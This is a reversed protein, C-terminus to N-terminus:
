QKAQLHIPIKNQFTLMSNQQLLVRKTKVDGTQSTVKGITNKFFTIIM